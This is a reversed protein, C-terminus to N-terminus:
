KEEKFYEIGLALIAGLFLGAVLGIITNLVASPSNDSVVPTFKAIEYTTENNNLENTKSQIVDASAAILKGLEDRNTGSISIDITAPETRVARFTRALKKQSIAPVALGAKQYIETVLSPSSFWTTVIQSFLGASQVNYYNDYLYYNVDKQRLASAKNVTFTTSALYSKPQTATWGFASAGCLIVIIWFIVRHIGIMKFYDRLEM